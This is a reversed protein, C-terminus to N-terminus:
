VLVWQQEEENWHMGGQANEPYAVPAEYRFTETNLTWSPFPPNEEYFADLEEDYIYGMGAYNGRFSGSRSTQKWTGELGMGELFQIGIPESDPYEGGDCDENRVVNVEIVRNNKDLKAFHAM